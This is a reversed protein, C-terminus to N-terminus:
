GHELAGAELGFVMDPDPGDEAAPAAYLCVGGAMAWAHAASGVARRGQADLDAFPEDLLLVPPGAVFGRAVALRRRQGTSCDGVRKAVLDTADLAGATVGAWRRSDHRSLGRLRGLFELNRQGTLRWYLGRDGAPVYGSLGQGARRGAVTVWGEDPLLLGALIRLLTTKGSGNRGTVAAVTGPELRFTVDGLIRVSGFSRSLGEVVVGGPGRPAFSSPM